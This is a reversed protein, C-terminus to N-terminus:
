DLRGAVPNEGFLVILNSVTDTDETAVAIQYTRHPGVETDAWEIVEKVNTDALQWVEAEFSQEHESDDTLETSRAWFTVQYAPNESNESRLDSQSPNVFRM